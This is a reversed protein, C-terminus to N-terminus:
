GECLTIILSHLHERADAKRSNFARNTAVLTSLVRGIQMPNQKLLATTERLARQNRWSRGLPTRQSLHQQLISLDRVKWMVTGFIWHPDKEEKLLRHLCSLASATNRAILANTLDWMEMESSVECVASVDASTIAQGSNVYAGLKMLENELILPNGTDRVLQHIAEAHIAIGLEDARQRVFSAADFDKAKLTLSVGNKKLLRKWKALVKKEAGKPYEDGMLILYTTDVPNEVFSIFPDLFKSSSRELGRVLVVKTTAFMSTLEAESAIVSPDDELADFVLYNTGDRGDPLLTTVWQDVTRQVLLPDGLVVACHKSPDVPHQM